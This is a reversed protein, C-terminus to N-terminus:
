EALINTTELGVQCNAALQRATKRDEPEARSTGGQYVMGKLNVGRVLATDLSLVEEEKVEAEEEEEEHKPADVQAVPSM